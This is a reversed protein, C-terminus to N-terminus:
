LRPEGQHVWQHRAREADDEETLAEVMVWHHEGPFEHGDGHDHGADHHEASARQDLFAFNRGWGSSGPAGAPCPAGTPDGTLMRQRRVAAM